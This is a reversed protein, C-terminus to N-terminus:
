GKERAEAIAAQMQELPMAGSVVRDGIVWAPTGSVGLRGAMAINTRIADEIGPAEAKQRLQEPDLGAKRAAAAM